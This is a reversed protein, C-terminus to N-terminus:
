CLFLLLFRSKWLNRKGKQDFSSCINILFVASHKSGLRGRKSIYYKKPYCTGLRVYGSSVNTCYELTADTTSNLQTYKCVCKTCNTLVM